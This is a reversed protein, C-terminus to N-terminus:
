ALHSGETRQQPACKVKPALFVAVRHQAPSAGATITNSSPVPECAINDADQRFRCFLREGGPDAAEPERSTGCQHARGPVELQEATHAAAYQASAPPDTASVAQQASAAAAAAALRRQEAMRHRILLVSVFTKGAGTDLFAIVQVLCICRHDPAGGLSGSLCLGM